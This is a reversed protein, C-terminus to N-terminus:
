LFLKPSPAATVPTLALEGSATSITPFIGSIITGAASWTDPPFGIFLHPARYYPKIQNTYLHEDPRAPEFRLPVPETWHLLDNSTATRIDRIPGKGSRGPHFDRIYARYEGRTFDWFAVNQTDFKGQVMVPKGQNMLSWQIGDPSQFALLGGKACCAVAKYRAEPRCGPNEDRFPSLDHAGPGVSVINNNSSGEFEFQGLLPKNWHVGDESEAYATVPGPPSALESKDVELHWGRYYMRYRDGDRFVTHYNGGNGEWSEDYVMVVERPVPSHLRFELGKLWQILYDDVLLQRRSGIEIVAPEREPVAWGGFGVGALLMAATISIRM